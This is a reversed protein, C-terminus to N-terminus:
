FGRLTRELRVPPVSSGACIRLSDCGACHANSDCRPCRLPGDVWAPCVTIPDGSWRGDGRLLSPAPPCGCTCSSAPRRARGARVAGGGGRGGGALVTVPHGSVHGGLLEALVAVLDPRLQQAQEVAAQGDGVEAVVVYGEEELMEKLDLRILAEDEAILVRTPANTM